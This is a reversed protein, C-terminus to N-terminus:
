FATKAMYISMVVAIAAVVATVLFVLGRDASVRGNEIDRNVPRLRKFERAGHAASESKEDALRQRIRNSM